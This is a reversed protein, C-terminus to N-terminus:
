RNAYKPLNDIFRELEEHKVFTKNGIKVASLAGDKLLQYFKTRGLGTQECVEAISYLMKM